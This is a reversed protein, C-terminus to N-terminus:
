GRPALLEADQPGGVVDAEVAGPHLAEAVRKDALQREGPVRERERCVRSERERGVYYVTDTPTSSPDPASPPASGGVLGPLMTNFVHQAVLNDTSDAHVALWRSTERAMATEDYYAVFLLSMQIVSFAVMLFMPLTFAFEVLAQARERRESM